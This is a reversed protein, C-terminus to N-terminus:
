RDAGAAFEDIAGAVADPAEHMPMHGTRPFKFLTAGRIGAALAEGWKPPTILDDAGALIWTPCAIEGLRPRLDVEAAARFDAVTQERSATCALAAGRKRVEAPTEPSYALEAFVEPWRGFRLELTELLQPSVTFRPASAVIVLGAVKDPWALAAMMAAAGGLSHGVLIAPGLCEAVATHAVADRWGEASEVREATRRGHGPLDMAVVRRRRALRGRIGLWISSSTGAGHILLIPTL